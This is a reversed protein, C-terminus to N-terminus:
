HNLTTIEKAMNEMNTNENIKQTNQETLESNMTIEAYTQKIQTIETKLEEYNKALTTTNQQHEWLSPSTTMCTTTSWLFSLKENHWPPLM